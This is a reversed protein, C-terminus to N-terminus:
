SSPPEMTLDLVHGYQLCLVHAKRVEDENENSSAANSNSKKSVEIAQYELKIKVRYLVIVSNLLM